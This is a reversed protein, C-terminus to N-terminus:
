RWIRHTSDPGYLAVQYERRDKRNLHWMTVQIRGIPTIRVETITGFRLTEEGELIRDDTHLETAKVNMEAM